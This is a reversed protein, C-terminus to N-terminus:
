SNNYAIALVLLLLPMGALFLFIKIIKKLM